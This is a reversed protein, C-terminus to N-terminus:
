PTAITLVHVAPPHAGASCLKLLSARLRACLLSETAGNGSKATEKTHFILHSEWSSVVANRTRCTDDSQREEALKTGIAHLSLSCGVPTVFLRSRGTGAEIDPMGASAREGSDLRADDCPRASLLM